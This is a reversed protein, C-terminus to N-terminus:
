WFISSFFGWMYLFSFGGVITVPWLLCVFLRITSKRLALVRGLRKDEFVHDNIERMSQGEYHQRWRLLSPERMYLQFVHILWLFAAPLVFMYLFPVLICFFFARYLETASEEIRTILEFEKEPILAFPSDALSETSM